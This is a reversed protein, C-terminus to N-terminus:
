TSGPPSAAGETLLRHSLSLEVLDDLSQPDLGTLEGVRRLRYRISNPHKRLYRGTRQVDCGCDLFAALTDLLTAHPLLPALVERAKAQASTADRGALLWDTLNIRAFRQARRRGRLASHLALEVERLRTPALDLDAFPESIGCRATDPLMGLWREVLNEDDPLLGLLRQGHVGFLARLGLDLAASEVPEARELPPTDEHAPDALLVLRFKEDRRFGHMDLRGRVYESDAREEAVVMRLLEARRLRDEVRAAKRSHMIMTILRRAAEMAPEALEDSVSRRRSAVALWHLETHTRIPDALVNWRGVTFSTRHTRSWVIEDRILHTPGVGSSAVISGAREYLVVTARLLDALRHVLATVPSPQTLSELLYDQIHVTRRQLYVDKTLTAQQVADIVELFPTRLPVSLLPFEHRQAEDLLAPPVDPWSLGIGFGLATVGNAVLERVLERQQAVGQESSTLRNGTTLMLWGPRMWRSPQEVEIAHAGRIVTHPDCDTLLRLGLKREAVLDVLRFTHESM